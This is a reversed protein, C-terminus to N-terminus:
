RADLASRLDRRISPACNPVGGDGDESLAELEEEARDRVSIRAREPGTEEYYITVDILHDGRARVDQVLQAAQRRLRRRVADRREAGGCLEVLSGQAPLRAQEAPSLVPAGAREITRVAAMAVPVLAVAFGTAAVPLALRRVRGLAWGIATAVLAVLLGLVVLYVGFLDDQSVLVLAYCAAVATPVLLVSARAVAAGLAVSAAILLVAVLWLWTEEDSLEFARFLGFPVTALLLVYVAPALLRLRARTM